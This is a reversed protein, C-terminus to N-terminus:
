GLPGLGQNAPGNIVRGQPDFRSGHCPCDWSQAGQNWQVICGLHPCTALLECLTGDAARYAAVKMLGRRIIAGHGPAIEDLSAVDGPTLWDFYQAAVNVNEQLFTGLAAPTKRAPSYLKEWPNERGLILDSLLMGAITGHTMGMGSDGTVVFINESDLPNRGIFALGDITEMCQGAWRLQVDQMAPFRERAWAELRGFREQSDDAQGSKHDEGGVILLEAGPAASTTSNGRGGLGGPHVRIYRYPEDTDWYLAHHVSGPPVEAGIVYTMYPAQKTHLALRNNIPVNTAVIVAEASVVHGAHVQLPKENRIQRAHTQTFIRGGERIIAHALAYLFQLPQFQGQNAFQLAPGSEFGKWPVRPVKKVNMGARQAAALERDLSEEKDSAGLLLYGDVRKFACDIKERRVTQDIWDIAAAHSQVALRAGEAGHLREIEYIRDDIASALHATTQGTMGGGVQGDELVVVSRGARALSYASTLGAIGAGIVCVDARVDSLL